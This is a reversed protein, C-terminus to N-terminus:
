FKLWYKFGIQAGTEEVISNVSLNSDNFSATAEFRTNSEGDKFENHLTPSIQWDGINYDGALTSKIDGDYEVQMSLHTDFPLAQNIKVRTTTFKLTTDALFDPTNPGEPFRASYNIDFLSNGQAEIVWPILDEVKDVAMDKLVDLDPAQQQQINCSTMQSSSLGGEFLNCDDAHAPTTTFSNFALAGATFVPLAIEKM